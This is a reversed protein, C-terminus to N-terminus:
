EPHPQLLFRATLGNRLTTQSAKTFPIGKSSLYESLQGARPVLALVQWGSQQIAQVSITFSFEGGGLLDDSSYVALLKM